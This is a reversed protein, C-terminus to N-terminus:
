LRSEKTIWKKKHAMGCFIGLGALGIVLLYAGYEKIGFVLCILAVAMMVLCVIWGKQELDTSPIKM